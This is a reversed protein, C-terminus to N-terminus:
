YKPKRPSVTGEKALVEVVEAVRSRDYFNEHHAPTVSTRTAIHTLPCWSSEIQELNIALTEAYLKTLRLLPKLVRGQGDAYGSEAIRHYVARTDARHMGLFLSIALFLIKSFVFSFFLFALLVAAYLCAALKLLVNGKRFDAKSAADVQDNWLKATGNAYGCFQCNLGDFARMGEIRGRDMLIYDKVAFRRLRYLPALMWQYLVVITTLHIFIFEFVSLYMLGGGLATRVLGIRRAHTMFISKVILEKRPGKGESSGAAKGAGDARDHREAGGM